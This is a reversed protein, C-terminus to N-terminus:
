LALIGLHELLIKTGILILVIGGTITAAKEFKMGFKHGLLVGVSSLAFTIAGIISIATWISFSEELFSFTVGVALADISTAVAMLLLKGIKLDERSQVDPKESEQEANKSVGDPSKKNKVSDKIVDFLMKGGILVLLAFAIWHDFKEIYQVFQAGLYYGIVPMLAQFGGFFLAILLLHKVNIKKMETGRCMAVAFADMSPSIGILVVDYLSM